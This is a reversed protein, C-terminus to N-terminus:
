TAVGCDIPIHGLFTRSFGIVDCNLGGERGGESERERERGGLKLM